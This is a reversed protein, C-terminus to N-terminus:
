DGHVPMRAGLASRWAELDGRMSEVIKPQEKALDRTEYPDNALDYLEVADEEFYEILKWRTDRIAGGPRWRTAHYHPFHWVLLREESPDSMLDAGDLAGISGIGALGLLTPLLDISTALRDDRTGARTVGPAVIALPVRIGGEYLWGKSGRLPENSTPAGEPGATRYSLGGNDSTFVIVTRDLVGSSELQAVVRGVEDDVAAVMSAYVANDQRSKVKIGDRMERPEAPNPELASAKDHFYDITTPADTLPTHVQYFAHVALFPRDANDAIFKATERGLRETLFEGDPGDALSPNRHPAFYAGANGRGRPSGTSWGGINVDFGQYQPWFEETQGLHWKGVFATTYGAESFYEGVTRAKLPLADPIAPTHLKVTEKPQFGPIWDTIGFRVPDMGTMLAARSPSCVPSASYANTFVTGRAALRDINPTEYFTSGTFGTDRWGMDDVVFVVFNLREDQTQSLTSQASLDAPLPACAATLVIGFIAVTRALGQTWIGTLM